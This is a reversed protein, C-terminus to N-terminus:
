VLYREAEILRAAIVERLALVDESERSTLEALRPLLDRRGLATVLKRSRDEARIAAEEATVKAVAIAGAAREEGRKEEDKCARLVTSEALYASMFLDALRTLVMQNDAGKEKPANAVADLVVLFLSKLNHALAMSGALAGAGPSMSVANAAAEKFPLANATYRRLLNTAILIRNIENTGEYIRTIRADRYLAEVPYEACYGYGGHCQVAEDCVVGLMESGIVKVAACELNYEEISRLAAEGHDDGASALLADIMGITRYTVAETSYIGVVMDALKERIAGFEALAKGFQKRTLTHALSYELAYKAHGVGGAGIKFRGINLINFAIKHGQGIKGLVNGVPVKCEDLIVTTTSSGKLGMKHEEPGISLGPTEREVLFGTFHQGDVKAFVMFLDAFGANTIFQKVGNLIYFQGDESLVAKTKGSMADSGAGPETLAYCGILKGEAMQPLYKEKLEHPGYYVLPLLGIGTQGGFITQFAGQGAINEAIIATSVKDLALGGYEEPIDAMLLGLAGAEELLSRILPFDKTEIRDHNPIVQNKMFDRATKATMLHESTFDETTFVEAAAQDRLLFESGRLYSVDAM